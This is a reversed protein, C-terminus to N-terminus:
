RLIHVVTPIPSKISNGFLVKFDPLKWQCQHKEYPNNEYGRNSHEGFVPPFSVVMAKNCKRALLNILLMTGDEVPMHELVDSLVVIDYVPLDKWLERIDGTFLRDYVYTHVRTLYPLFAEVGDIRTKWEVKTYRGKRIDLHERMLLGYKGFGVGIDLVSKISEDPFYQTVGMVAPIKNFHSTPM